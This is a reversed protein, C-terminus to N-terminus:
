FGRLPKNSFLLCVVSLLCVASLRSLEINKNWVDKSQATKTNSAEFHGIQSFYVYLQFYVFLQQGRRHHHRRGHGLQRIRQRQRQQGLQHQGQDPQEPNPAEQQPRGGGKNPRWACIVDM